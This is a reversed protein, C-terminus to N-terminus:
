SLLTSETVPTTRAPEAQSAVASPKTDSPEATATDDWPIRASVRLGSNKSSDPSSLDELQLVGNINEVRDRMGRIGFGEILKKDGLGGGDDEVVLEITGPSATRTTIRIRDPTGHRLANAIAERVVFFMVSMASQDLKTAALDVDFRVGPHRRQSTSVLNDIAVALGQDLLVAPRLRGLIVTVTKKLQKLASRITHTQELIADNDSDKALKAIMATDVDAAFLLPSVEDHLDRALDAREEEQVDELQQSLRNNRAAMQELSQGMDNFGHCLRELEPSGSPAVRAKLNGESIEHYGDLLSRIPAIARSVIWSVLGLVLLCFFGLIGAFTTLDEWAEAVENAPDATIVVNHVRGTSAPLSIKDVLPQPDLFRVFWQPAPHEAAAQRSNSLVGGVENLLSIRVHRDGNFHAVMLDLRRSLDAPSQSVDIENQAVQRGIALSAQMETAVKSKAHWYVPVVSLCATLLLACAVTAILRVQLPLRHAITTPM